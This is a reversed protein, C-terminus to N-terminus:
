PRSRVSPNLVSLFSFFYPLQRIKLKSVRLRQGPMDGPSIASFTEYFATRTVLLGFALMRRLTILTHSRINELELM